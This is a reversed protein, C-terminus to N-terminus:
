SSLHHKSSLIAHSPSVSCAPYNIGWGNANKEARQSTEDKGREDKKLLQYVFRRGRDNKMAEMSERNRRVLLCTREARDFRGGDKEDTKIGSISRGPKEMTLTREAGTGGVRGSLSM